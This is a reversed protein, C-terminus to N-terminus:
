CDVVVYLSPPPSNGMTEEVWIPQSGTLEAMQKVDPFYFNGEEPKNDPTFMNKKWPTRLLGEVVIEGQPLGQPRRRQDKFAKPIWGRNVLITSEGDGRELPTVVLYGEKSEYM